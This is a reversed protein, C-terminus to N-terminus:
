EKVEKPFPPNPISGKCIILPMFLKNVKDCLVSKVCYKIAEGKSDRIWDLLDLRAKNIKQRDEKRM